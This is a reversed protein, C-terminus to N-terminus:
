KGTSGFGGDARETAPLVDVIQPKFHYCPMIILQAIRDGTNITYDEDSINDYIVGIEGRYDADICGISNSLRLPTKAGISSRPIIYGVWGEPLAIQLGTKVITSRSHAPLTITEAAYIDAGADTEHAYTPAHGEKSIKIPLSFSFNHYQDAAAEYVEELSNFIITLLAKKQASPALSEIVAELGDHLEQVSQAADERKYEMLEFNEIISKIMEKEAIDSFISEMMISLNKLAEDNLADDPLQMVQEILENLPALNQNDALENLFNTEM